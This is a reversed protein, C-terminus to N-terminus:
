SFAVCGILHLPIMMKGHSTILSDLPVKELGNPTRLRGEGLHQPDGIRKEPLPKPEAEWIVGPSRTPEVLLSLVSHIESVDVQTFTDAAEPLTAERLTAM